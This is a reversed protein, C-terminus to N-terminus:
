KQIKSEVAGQMKAAMSKVLSVPLFKVMKFTITEKYIIINKAQYAKILTAPNEKMMSVLLGFGLVSKFGESGGTQEDFLSKIQDKNAKAEDISKVTNIAGSNMMKELTDDTLFADIPNDSKMVSVLFPASFELENFKATEVGDFTKLDIIFVKYNGELLADLNNSALASSYQNLKAQDLFVLEGQEKMKAFDIEGSVKGIVLGSLATNGDKMIILKNETTMPDKMKAIDMVVLAGIIISLIFMIGVAIAIAKLISKLLLFALAAVVVLVIIYILIGSAFSM